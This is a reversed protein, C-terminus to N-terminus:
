PQKGPGRCLQVKKSLLMAALFHFAVNVDFWGHGPGSETPPHRTTHHNPSHLHLWPFKHSPSVATAEAPGETRARLLAPPEAYGAPPSVETTDPLSRCCSVLWHGGVLRPLGLLEAVVQAPPVIQRVVGVM